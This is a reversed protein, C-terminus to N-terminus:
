KAPNPCGCGPCTKAEVSVGRNCHKCSVTKGVNSDSAVVWMFFVVLVFIGVLVGGITAVVKLTGRDWHPLSVFLAVLLLIVLVPVLVKSITLEGEIDQFREVKLREREESWIPVRKKCKECTKRLENSVGYGCHPCEQRALIIRYNRIMKASPKAKGPSFLSCKPCTMTQETVKAGCERCFTVRDSSKFKFMTLSDELNIFGLLSNSRM